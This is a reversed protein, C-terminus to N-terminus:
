RLFDGFYRFRTLAAPAGTKGILRQMTLNEGIGAICAPGADSQSQGAIGQTDCRFLIIWEAFRFVPPMYQPHLFAACNLPRAPRIEM